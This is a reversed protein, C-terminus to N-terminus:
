NKLKGLLDSFSVKFADLGDTLLTKYVKEINIGKSKILAFYEDCTEEDIIETADKKGTEIWDEITNLPATNISHPYL